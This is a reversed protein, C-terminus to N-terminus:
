YEVGEADCNIFTLPFFNFEVREGEALKCSLVDIEHFIEQRRKLEESNDCTQRKKLLTIPTLIRFSYM